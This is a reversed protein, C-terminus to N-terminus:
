YELEYMMMASIAVPATETRLIREGLTISKANNNILIEAEEEDIGGEPGIIVAIKSISDDIDKLVSKLTVSKEKEYALIVLDYNKIEELLLSFSLIKEVKLIDNRLSQKAAVEAIKRWRDIKKLKDKDDLKVVCRKMEVPVIESVGLETCKQIIYEIKDAKALGQFITLEVNSKKKEQKDLIKCVVQNQTIESIESKYIVNESVVNLIDGVNKRLVNKIHNVDSSEIYIYDNKIKDKDVFFNMDDLWEILL